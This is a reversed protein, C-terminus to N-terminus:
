RANLNQLIRLKEQASVGQESESIQDVVSQREEIPTSEEGSLRDLIEQKGPDVYAEELNPQVYLSGFLSILIVFALAAALALVVAFVYKHPARPHQEPM